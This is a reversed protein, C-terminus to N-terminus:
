HGLMSQVTSGVEGILYITAFRVAVFWARALVRGSRLLKTVNVVVFGKVIAATETKTHGTVEMIM